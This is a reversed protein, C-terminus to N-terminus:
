GAFRDGFRARLAADLDSMAAPVRLEALSTVGGGRIGCPVIGAYRSLDPAVNVAVGHFSVWRRLRIGIAAIKAERGDPGTTWVGTRGARRFGRVGLDGLSDIVWDELACVFRRIDASRGARKLDLMVYAIRQGPGHYTYRGGRGSEHVPLGGPDILEDARASTGRTYLPPHELLWVLERARGARIAAVRSEMAAVAAPYGVPRDDTRWEVGGMAPGYCTNRPPPPNAIRRPPPFGGRCTRDHRFQYVRLTSTATPAVGHFNSDERGCWGVQSM